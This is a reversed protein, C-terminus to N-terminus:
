TLQRGAFSGVFWDSVAEIKSTVPSHVAHGVDRRYSLLSAVFWGLLVQFPFSGFAFGSALGSSSM